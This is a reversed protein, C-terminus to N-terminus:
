AYVAQPRTLQFDAPKRPPNDLLGQKVHNMHIHYLKEWYERPAPHFLQIHEEEAAMRIQEIILEGLNVVAEREDKGEAILDLELCHM